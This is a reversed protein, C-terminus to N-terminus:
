FPRHFTDSSHIPFVLSGNVARGRVGQICILEVTKGGPLLSPKITITIPHSCLRSLVICTSPALFAIAVTEIGSQRPSVFALPPFSYQLCVNASTLFEWGTRISPQSHMDSHSFCCLGGNGVARLLSLPSEPLVLPALSQMWRSCPSTPQNKSLCSYVASHCCTIRGHTFSPCCFTLMCWRLYMSMYM